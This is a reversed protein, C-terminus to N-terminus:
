NLIVPMISTISRQIIFSQLSYVSLSRLAMRAESTTREGWLLRDYVLVLVFVCRAIDKAMPNVLAIM